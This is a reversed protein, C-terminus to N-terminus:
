EDAMDSSTGELAATEDNVPSPNLTSSINAVDVPDIPGIEINKIAKVLKKRYNHTGGTFNLTFCASAFKSEM